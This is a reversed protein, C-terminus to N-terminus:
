HVDDSASKAAALFPDKYIESPPIALFTMTTQGAFFSLVSRIISIIALDVDCKRINTTQM